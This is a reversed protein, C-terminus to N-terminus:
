PTTGPPPGCAPDPPASPPDCPDDGPVGAPDETTVDSATNGPGETFTVRQNVAPEWGDPNTNGANVNYEYTTDGDDSRIRGKNEPPNVWIVEGNAASATSAGWAPLLLLVGILGLLTAAFIRKM